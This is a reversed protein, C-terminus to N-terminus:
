AARRTKRYLMANGAKGEQRIAGMQRLCYAIRQAIWRKTGAMEALHGTHFPKPLGAASGM